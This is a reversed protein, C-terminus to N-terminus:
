GAVGGSNFNMQQAKLNAVCCRSLSLASDLPCVKVMEARLVTGCSSFAEKLEQGGVENCQLPNSTNHECRMASSKM